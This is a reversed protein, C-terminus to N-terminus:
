TNLRAAMNFQFFYKQWDQSTSKYLPNGLYWDIFMEKTRAIEKLRNKNKSDNLTLELLELSRYFAKQADKNLNKEKSSITRFVESGINAMQNILDLKFWKGKQLDKHSYKM